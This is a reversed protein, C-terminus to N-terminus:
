RETREPADPHAATAGAPGTVPDTPHKALSTTGAAPGPGPAVADDEVLRAVVQRAWTTRVGAAPELVVTTDGVEVVRAYLGATTVVRQGPVLAAQLAAARKQQQRGRNMLVLLLIIPILLILTGM